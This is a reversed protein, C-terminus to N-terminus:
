EGEEIVPEYVVNGVNDFDSDYPWDEEDCDKPCADTHEHYNKKEDTIVYKSRHTIKAIFNKGQMAEKSIEEEIVEDLWAVAEKFTDFTQFDWQAADFAIYKHTKM